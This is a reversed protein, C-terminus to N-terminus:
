HIKFCAIRFEGLTNGTRARRIKEHITAEDDLLNVRDMDNANSKSMKGHGSLNMISHMCSFFFVLKFEVNPVISPLQFLISGIRNNLKEAIERAVTVHIRQDRAAIVGTARCALIDATMLLPYLMTALSKSRIDIRRKKFYSIKNFRGASVVTSLFWKLQLIEPISSQLYINCKEPDLGCALILAVTQKINSLLKEKDIDDTTAHLDAIMFNFNVNTEQAKLSPDICGIYNGIHMQGTPQIGAIVNQPAVANLPAPPTCKLANSGNFRSSKNGIVFGYGFYAYCILGYYCLLSM